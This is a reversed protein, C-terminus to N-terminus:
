DVGTSGCGGRDPNELEDVFEIEIGRSLLWKLKQWPTAKMSPQIDFQCIREGKKIDVKGVCMVSMFWQDNNGCYSNDIQGVGNCMIAQFNGDQKNISSRPYVNAKMGKPLQMAIGLPILARDFEVYRLREGNNKHLTNAYPEKLVIDEAARLDICDGKESLAIDCGGTFVKVKIRLKM